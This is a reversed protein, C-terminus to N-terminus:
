HQKFERAIRDGIDRDINRWYQFARELVPESVGDKLHGVVNAVLRERQEDDMVENILANPQSFDDDDRRKTYADRVLEGASQWIADEPYKDPDAAPGGKSNPAYVPDTANKIRMAGEKSYSHVPCKPENVPIQKYNVGLRARHADAYSFVRAMLM